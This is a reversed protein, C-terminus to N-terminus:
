SPQFHHCRPAAFLMAQRLPLSELEIDVAQQEKGTFSRWASITVTCGTRRWTGAIEGDLLLAGPWVRDTWLATRRKVQPVLMARDAGWLLFYPDGSPL